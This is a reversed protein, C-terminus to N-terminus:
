QKMGKLIEEDEARLYQAALLSGDGLSEFSAYQADTYGRQKLDFKDKAARARKALKMAKTVKM